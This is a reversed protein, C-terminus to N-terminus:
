VILCDLFGWNLFVCQEIIVIFFRLTKKRIFTVGVFPAPRFGCVVRGRTFFQNLEEMVRLEYHILVDKLVYLVYFPCLLGVRVRASLRFNALILGLLLKQSM